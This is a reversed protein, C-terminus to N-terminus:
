KGVCFKSFVEKAVEETVRKGTLEYLCGLAADLEVNVADLTVGAKLAGLANDLCRAAKE